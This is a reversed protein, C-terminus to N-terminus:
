YSPQYVAFIWRPVVVYMMRLPLKSWANPFFFNNCANPVITTASPDKEDDEEEYITELTIQIHLKTASGLSHPSVACFPTLLSTQTNTSPMVTINAM